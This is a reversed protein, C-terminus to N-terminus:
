CLVQLRNYAFEQGRDTKLKDCTALNDFTKFTKSALERQSRVSNPDKPRGIERTLFKGCSKKAEYGHYWYSQQSNFVKGCHCEFM